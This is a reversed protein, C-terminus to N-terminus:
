LLSPPVHKLLSPVKLWICQKTLCAYFNIVFGLLKKMPDNLALYKRLHSYRLEVINFVISTIHPPTNPNLLLLIKTLRRTLCIGHHILNFIALRSFRCVNNALCPKLESIFFNIAWRRTSKTIHFNLITKVQNEYFLEFTGVKLSIKWM